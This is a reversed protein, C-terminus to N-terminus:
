DSIFLQLPVNAMQLLANFSTFISIVNCHTGVEAERAVELREGNFSGLLATRCDPYLYLSHPDSFNWSKSVLFGGGPLSKWCVGLVLHSSNNIVSMIRKEEGLLTGRHFCGFFELDGYGNIHRFYGHPTGGEYNGEFM